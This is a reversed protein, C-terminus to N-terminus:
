SALFRLLEANVRDPAEEPSVHGVGELMVVRARPAEGIIRSVLRPSVIRDRAGFIVLVPMRLRRVESRHLTRWNVEHVMAWLARHFAPDRAPAHYEDVDRPTIQAPNGYATRLALTVLARPLTRIPARGLARPLRRAASVFRVAGLGVAGCLVLREVSAPWRLAVRAAIAGGLSLGVLTARSIGLAALTALVDAALTDLTYAQPTEPKDSWGHGRLDMAVVRYGARALVPLNSRFSYASCGWGPIFLVPSGGVPGGEVLRLSVGSGLSVRRAGLGDVGAPFVDTSDLLTLRRSSPAAALKERSAGPSRNRGARVSGSTWQGDRTADM